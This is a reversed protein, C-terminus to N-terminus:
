ISGRFSISQPFPSPLDSVQYNTVADRINDMLGSVALVDEDDETYGVTEVHGLM